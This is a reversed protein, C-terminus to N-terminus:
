RAELSLLHAFYRARSGHWRAQRALASVDARSWGTRKHRRAVELTQVALAAHEDREREFRERELPLLVARM